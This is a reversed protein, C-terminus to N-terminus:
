RPADTASDEAESKRSWSKALLAAGFAAPVLWYIGLAVIWLPQPLDLRQGMWRFAIWLLPASCAGLLWSFVCAIWLGRLRARQERLEMARVRVRRRTSEMVAPDPAVPPLRLAAVARDLSAAHEACRTCKDLHEDLWARDTESIGEIRSTVALLAAKKHIDESM